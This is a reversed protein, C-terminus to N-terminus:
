HTRVHVTGIYAQVDAENPPARNAGCLYGSLLYEYYNRSFAGANTRFSIIPPGPAIFARCHELGQSTFSAFFRDGEQSLNIWDSAARTTDNMRQMLFLPGQLGSLEVVCHPDSGPQQMHYRVFGTTGASQTFTSGNDAVCQFPIRSANNVYAYTTRQVPPGQRCEVQGPVTLRSVGCDIKQWAAHAASFPLLAVVAAVVVRM